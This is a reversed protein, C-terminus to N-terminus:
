GRPGVQGLTQRIISCANAKKVNARTSHARDIRLRYSSPTSWHAVVAHEVGSLASSSNSGSTASRASTPVIIPRAFWTSPHTWAALTRRARRSRSSSAAPSDSDAACASISSPRREPRSALAVSSRSSSQLSNGASSSASAVPAHEVSWRSASVRSVFFRVSASRESRCAVASSMMADAVDSQTDSNSRLVRVIMSLILSIWVGRLSTASSSRWRSADFIDRHTSFDVPM